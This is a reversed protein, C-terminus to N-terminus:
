EEEDSGQTLRALDDVVQQLRASEAYSIKKFITRLIPYLIPLVAFFLILGVESGTKAFRLLGILSIM